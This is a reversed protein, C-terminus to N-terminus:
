HISSLLSVASEFNAQSIRSDIGGRDFDVNFTEMAPVTLFLTISRACYNINFGALHKSLIVLSQKDADPFVDESIKELHIIILNNAIQLTTGVNQLSM